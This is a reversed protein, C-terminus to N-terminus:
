VGRTSLSHLLRWTIVRSYLATDNHRLWHEEFDECFGSELAWGYSRSIPNRKHTWLSFLTKAETNRETNNKIRVRYVSLGYYIVRSIKTGCKYPSFRSRHFKVASEINFLIFFSHEASVHAAEVVFYTYICIHSAIFFWVSLKDILYILIYTYIYINFILIEMRSYVLLLM